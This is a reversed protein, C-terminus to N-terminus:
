QIGSGKENIKNYVIDAIYNITVAAAMNVDDHMSIGYKEQCSVFVQVIVVSTLGIDDFLLDDDGIADVDKDTVERLMIRIDNKIDDVTM